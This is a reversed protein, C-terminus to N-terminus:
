SKNIYKTSLCVPPDSGSSQPQGAVSQTLVSGGEGLLLPQAWIPSGALGVPAPSLRELCRIGEVAAM